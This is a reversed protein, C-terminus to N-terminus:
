AALVIVNDVHSSPLPAIWRPLALGALDIRLFVDDNM